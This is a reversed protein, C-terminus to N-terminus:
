SFTKLAKILKKYCGESQFSDSDKPPAPVELGKVVIGVSLGTLNVFLCKKEPSITVKSITLQDEFDEIWLKFDWDAKGALDPVFEKLAWGQSM